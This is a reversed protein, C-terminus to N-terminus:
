PLFVAKVGNGKALDEFVREYDELPSEHSILSSLDIVKRNLMSVVRSWSIPSSSYSFILSLSKEAASLWDIPLGNKSPLGIVCMRGLRRLLDIGSNIAPTAGSAEIVLDVKEIGYTSLLVQAVDDKQSNITLDAGMKKALPLRLQEDADTGVVIVKSAGYIKAMQASILGIPGPGFVVVVDEPEVKTRELLAYTVIAMPEAMAADTFSVSDDLKILMEAPISIYEAYAGDLKFGPCTRCECMHPNGTLCARCVGCVGLNLRSIVHDGVAVNTVKNGVEVIEGSFEHGVIVPIETNVLGQYIHVDTGCVGVARVRILAENAEIVPMPVDMLEFGKPESSTRVLAKM